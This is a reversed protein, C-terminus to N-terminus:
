SNGQVREKKKLWYHAKITLFIKALLETQTRISTIMGFLRRVIAHFNSVFHIVTTFSDKSLLILNFQIEM